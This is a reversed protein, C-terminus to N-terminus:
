KESKEKRTKNYKRIVRSMVEFNPLNGWDWNKNKYKDRMENNVIDLFDEVYYKIKGM